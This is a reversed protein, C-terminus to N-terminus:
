FLFIYTKTVKHTNQMKGANQPWLKTVKITIILENNKREILSIEMAKEVLETEQQLLVNILFVECLM